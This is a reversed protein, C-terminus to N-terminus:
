TDARGGAIVQLPRRGRRGKVKGRPPLHCKRLLHRILPRGPGNGTLPIGWDGGQPPALGRECPPRANASGDNRPGSPATPIRKEKSPSVSQRTPGAARRAMVLFSVTRVKYPAVVRRARGEGWLPSPPGCPRILPRLSPGVMMGTLVRM